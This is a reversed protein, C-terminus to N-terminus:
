PAADLLTHIKLVTAWNRSTVEDRLRRDLATAVRSALVGQSCWLYAAHRGVRLADPAWDQAALPEIEARGAAHRWVAVMLRSPDTMIAGLPNDAQVERWQSADLVTVKSVVGLKAEIAAQIRAAAQLRSKATASFVVNGSNLLTAVDGYGLSEVLAALDAMAVRKAKGVNIGRLLAVCRVGSVPAGEPQARRYEGSPGLPGRSPGHRGPPSM